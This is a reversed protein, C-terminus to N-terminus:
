RRACAPTSGAQEALYKAREGVTLGRGVARCVRDLAAKGSPVDVPWLRVTHDISATALTRGDRTLGIAMVAADHGTFVTRLRGTPVDWLWAARDSGATVLTRGDPTFALGMLFGDHSTITGMGTSWSLQSDGTATDWMWVIGGATAALTRSDPSFALRTDPDVGMADLDDRVRGTRADWLRVTRGTVTALFRGDPSYEVATVEGRTRPLTARLRGHATDWVRVAGDDTGTAVTEGDPGFAVVRGAFTTRVRGTAADHLRATGDHGGTAVTRGDPSFEVSEARGQSGALATRVRGTATDRLHAGASSVTALVRRDPGFAVSTVLDRSATLVRGVPVDWLRVTHDDGGSALTRGDPSFALATVGDLHGAFVARPARTALDWTRVNRDAGGTALTRGDPSFALAGVPQETTLTGSRRGTATNWLRVNREAGGVALTRGDPSFALAGADDTTLTARLRGDATDHLQVPDSTAVTRGDPSFLVSWGAGPFSTRSRGTTADWLRVTGDEGTAALTRGDPSLAAANPRPVHLALTTRPRGTRTDWRRLVGDAYAVALTDDDTFGVARALNEPDHPLNERPRGTRTDWLKVTRTDDTNAGSSALTRGDPSFALHLVPGHHGTLRHRLPLSAANRLSTDAETTASVLYAQAALLSALDPDHDLWGGAEVSLLRSVNRRQAAADGRM